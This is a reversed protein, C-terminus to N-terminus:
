DFALTKRRRLDDWFAWGSCSTTCRGPGRVCRRPIPRLRCVWGRPPPNSGTLADYLLPMLVSDPSTAALGRYATFLMVPAMAPQNVLVGHIHRVHASLEHSYGLLELQHLLRAARGLAAYRLLGGELVRRLRAVGSRDELWENLAM